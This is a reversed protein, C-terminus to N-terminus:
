SHLEWKPNSMASWSILCIIGHTAEADYTCSIDIPRALHSARSNSEALVQAQSGWSSFQEAAKSLVERNIRAENRSILAKNIIRVPVIHAAAVLKPQLSFLHLFELFCVIGTTSSSRPAAAWFNSTGLNLALTVPHPHLRLEKVLFLSHGKSVEKGNLLKNATLRKNSVSLLIQTIYNTAATFTWHKVVNWEICWVEETSAESKVTWPASAIKSNMNACWGKELSSLM